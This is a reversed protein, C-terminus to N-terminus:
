FEGANLILRPKELLGSPTEPADAGSDWRSEMM